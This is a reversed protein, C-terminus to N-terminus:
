PQGETTAPPLVAFAFAQRKYAEIAGRVRAEEDLDPRKRSRSWQSMAAETCVAERQEYDAPMHNEPSPGLAQRYRERMDPTMRSVILSVNKEIREELEGLLDASKSLAVKERLQKIKVPDLEIPECEGTEDNHRSALVNTQPSPNCVAAIRREFDAQAAMMAGAPSGDASIPTNTTEELVFWGNVEGEDLGDPDSLIYRLGLGSVEAIGNVWKLPVAHNQPAPVAARLRDIERAMRSVAGVFGGEGDESLFSGATNDQDFFMVMRLYPDGPNVPLVHNEPSTGLAALVRSAYDTQAAARAQEESPFQTAARDPWDLWIIGDLMRVQYLWGNSAQHITVREDCYGKRWELPKVHSEPSPTGQAPTEVKEVTPTLPSVVADAYDNAAKEVDAPMYPTNQNAWKAGRLYAARLRHFLDDQSMTLAETSM